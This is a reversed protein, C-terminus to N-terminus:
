KIMKSIPKDFIEKTLKTRIEKIGNEFAKYRKEIEKILEQVTKLDDERIEYESNDDYYTLKQYYPDYSLTGGGIDINITKTYDEEENGYGTAFVVKKILEYLYQRAEFTDHYVKSEKKKNHSKKIM